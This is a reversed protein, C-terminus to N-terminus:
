EWLKDRELLQNVLSHDVNKLETYIRTVTVVKVNKVIEEIKNQINMDFDKLLNRINDGRLASMSLKKIRKGIIKSMRQLTICVEAVENYNELLYKDNTAKAIILFDEKPYLTGIVTSNNLWNRITPETRKLGLRNLQKSLTSFSRDQIFNFLAEKWKNKIEINLQKNEFIESFKQLVNRVGPIIIIEHGVELESLKIDFVSENDFITPSYNKSFFSIYEDNDDESFVTIAEATNGTTNGQYYNSISALDFEFLKIHDELVEDVKEEQVVESLFDNGFINLYKRHFLKSTNLLIKSELNFLRFKLQSPKVYGLLLAPFLFDNFFFSDIFTVIYQVDSLGNLIFSKFKKKGIINSDENDNVYDTVVFDNSNKQYNKYNYHTINNVLDKFKSVQIYNEYEQLFKNLSNQFLESSYKNLSCLEYIIKRLASSFHPNLDRYRKATLLFENILENISDNGVIDINNKLVNYNYSADTLLIPTTIQTIPLNFEYNLKKFDNIAGWFMVKINFNNNELTQFMYQFTAPNNFRNFNDSIIFFNNKQKNNNIFDLLVAQDSFFYVIREPESRDFKETNIKRFNDEDTVYYAPFFDFFSQNCFHWKKFGSIAEELPQKLLFLLYTREFYNFQSYPINTKQALLKIPNEIGISPNLIPYKKLQNNSTLKKDQSCKNLRWVFQSALLRFTTTCKLDDNYLIIIETDNYTDKGQYKLYLRRLANEVKFSLEVTEGNSFNRMPLNISDYILSSCCIEFLFEPNTLDYDKSWFALRYNQKDKILQLPNM